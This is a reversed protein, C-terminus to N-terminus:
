NLHKFRFFLSNIVIDIFYFVPIQKVKFSIIKLFEKMQILKEEKSGKKFSRFALKTNHPM